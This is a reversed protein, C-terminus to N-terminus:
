GRRARAMGELLAVGERNIVLRGNDETSTFV